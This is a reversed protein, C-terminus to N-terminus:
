LIQNSHFCEPVYDDMTTIILNKLVASIKKNIQVQFALNRVFLLVIQHLVKQLLQCLDIGIQILKLKCWLM